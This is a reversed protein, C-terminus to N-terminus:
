IAGFIFTFPEGGLRGSGTGRQGTSVFTFPGTRGDDCVFTGDGQRRSVYVFAGTCRVGKNSIIMLDGAGDAYGTARGTFTEGTAAVHGQVPLTLSCGGLASGLVLVTAPTLRM